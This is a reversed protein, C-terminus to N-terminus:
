FAWRFKVGMFNGEKPKMAFYAGAMIGLICLFFLCPCAFFMLVILTNASQKIIIKECTNKTGDFDSGTAATSPNVVEYGDLCKTCTDTSAACETCFEVKCCVKEGTNVPTATGTAAGTGTAAAASGSTEAAGGSCCAGQELTFSSKCTECETNDTLCKSCGNIRCITTTSTSTGSAAGTGSCKISPLTLLISFTVVTLISTLKAM